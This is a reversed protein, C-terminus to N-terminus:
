LLRVVAIAIIIVAVWFILSFLCGSMTGGVRDVGWEKEANKGM